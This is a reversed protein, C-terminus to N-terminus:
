RRVFSLAKFKKINEEWKERKQVLIYCINLCFDNKERM